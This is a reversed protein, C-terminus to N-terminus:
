ASQGLPWSDSQYPVLEITSGNGSVTSSPGQKYLNTIQSGNLAYAFYQLRSIMAKAAGDVVFDPQSKSSSDPFHRNNLVFVPGFNTQAVSEPFQIRNVSNGNIYVDLYKGTLNIVLHFWKKIPINNVEVFNDWRKNTNM